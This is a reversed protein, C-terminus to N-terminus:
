IGYNTCHQRKGKRCHYANRWKRRQKGMHLFCRLWDHKSSFNIKAEPDESTWSGFDSWNRYDNVYNYVSAKPSNIIKSREVLFDGKQTAIFISLAVLSLLLLLFIYKLIRM